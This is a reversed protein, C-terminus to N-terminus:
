NLLNIELKLDTKLQTITSFTQMFNWKFVCHLPSHPPCPIIHYKYKHPFPPCWFPQRLTEHFPTKRAGAIDEVLSLKPLDSVEPSISLPVRETWTIYHEQLPSMLIATAINHSIAIDEVWSLKSLDSVEPSISLAESNLYYLTRVLAVDFHSSCHKTFHRKVLGQLTKLEVWSPCM